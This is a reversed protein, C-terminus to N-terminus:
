RPSRAGGRRYGVSFVPCQVCGRAREREQWRTRTVANTNREQKTRKERVLVWWWYWDPILLWCGRGTVWERGGAIAVQRGGGMQLRRWNRCCFCCGSTKVADLRWECCRKLRHKGGLCRNTQSRGEAGIKTSRRSHCVVLAQARKVDPPERECDADQKMTTYWAASYGGIDRRHRRSSVNNQM